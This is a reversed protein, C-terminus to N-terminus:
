TACMTNGNNIKENRLMGAKLDEEIDEESVRDNQLFRYFGMPMPM